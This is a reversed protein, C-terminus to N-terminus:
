ASERDEASETAAGGPVDKAGDASGAGTRQPEAAPSQEDQSRSDPNAHEGPMVTERVLRGPDRVPPVDREIERRVRRLEEEIGAERWMQSVARRLRVIQAAARMAVEPLRRGFILLAGVGIVLLETFDFNGLLAFM